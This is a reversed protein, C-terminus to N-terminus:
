FKGHKPFRLNQKPSIRRSIWHGLTISPLEVCRYVIWAFALTLIFSSLFAAVFLGFTSVGFHNLWQIFGPVFCIFIVFQLLYVSYSIQGAFIFPRRTLLSGIRQSSLSAAIIMACGFSAIVWVIPEAWRNEFNFYYLLLRSEYGAIGLLLLALKRNFNMKKLRAIMPSSHRALLVGIIFSVYYSGTHIFVFFLLALVGLWLSHWRWRTMILFLPILASGKLEVGLSWDQPMMLRTADHLQFFCQKILDRWSLHQHWFLALWSSIPPSTQYSCMLWHRAALSALFVFFWPLWIRIIRRLYFAPIYITKGPPPPSALFPRALVFGSLVFFMTVASRGDVAMNLLPWGMWNVYAAPWHFVAMTHGMLVSLAALGRISDLSELRQSSAM